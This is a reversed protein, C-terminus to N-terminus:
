LLMKFDRGNQTDVFNLEQFDRLFCKKEYPLVILEQNYFSRQENWGQRNRIHWKRDMKKEMREFIIIKHMNDNEIM